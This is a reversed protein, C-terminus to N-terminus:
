ADPYNEAVHLKLCEGLTDNNPYMQKLSRVFKFWAGQQGAADFVTADTLYDAMFAPATMGIRWAAVLRRPAGCATATGVIWSRTIFDV